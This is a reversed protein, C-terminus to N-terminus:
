GTIPFRLVHTPRTVANMGAGPMLLVLEHQDDTIPCQPVHWKGSETIISAPGSAQSSVLTGCQHNILSLVFSRVKNALSFSM